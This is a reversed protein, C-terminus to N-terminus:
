RLPPPQSGRAPRGALLHPRSQHAHTIVTASGSALEQSQQQTQGRLHGCRQGGDGRGSGEPCGPKRGGSGGEMPWGLGQARGRGLRGRPAAKARRLPLPRGLHPRPPPPPAAPCPMQRRPWPSHRPTAPTCASRSLFLATNSHCAVAQTVISHQCPHYGGVRAVAPTLGDGRTHTEAPRPHASPPSAAGRPHGRPPGRHWSRCRRCRSRMFVVGDVILAILQGHVHAPMSM